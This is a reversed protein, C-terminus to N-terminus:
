KPRAFLQEILVEQIANPGVIGSATKLLRAKLYAQNITGHFDIRAQFFAYLDRFFADTLQQRKAEVDAQDEGPVLQLMLTIGVQQTVRDRDIVPIFIPNFRVYAPAGPVSAAGGEKAHEAAGAPSAQLAVSLAAAALM